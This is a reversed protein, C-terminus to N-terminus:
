GALLPVELSPRIADATALATTVLLDVTAERTTPV